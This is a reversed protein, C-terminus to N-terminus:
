LGAIVIGGMRLELVYTMMQQNKNNNYKYIFM